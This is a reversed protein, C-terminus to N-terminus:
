SKGTIQFPIFLTAVQGPLLCNPDSLLFLSPLLALLFRNQKQNDTYCFTNQSLQRKPNLSRVQPNAKVNRYYRHKVQVKTFLVSYDCLGM